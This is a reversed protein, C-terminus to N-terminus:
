SCIPSVAAKTFLLGVVPSFPKPKTAPGFSQMLHLGPDAFLLKNVQDVQHKVAASWRSGSAGVPKLPNIVLIHGGVGLAALERGITACPHAQELRSTLHRWDVVYPDTVPGLPTAFHLGPPAYHAVVAMQESQNVLVLDGPQLIHDAVGVVAAVNSKAYRANPDPILSGVVSWAALLVATMAVVRRGRRTTGLLGALALLAPGLAVALYRSAWSPEIQAATWGEIVTIGSIALILLGLRRNAASVKLLCALVGAILLPGILAGLTGGLVSAPDAFLDGFSPPVAWPAATNRAQELFFPLWPLYMVFLAAASGAVVLLERGDRRIVAHVAFVAVAAAVLYLGWNHTYVLFGFALTAWAAYRLSRDRM